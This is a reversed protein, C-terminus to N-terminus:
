SARTPLARTRGGKPLARTLFAARASEEEVDELPALEDRKLAVRLLHDTLDPNLPLVPGHLYTGFITDAIAGETGDDGNNGHGKGAIALPRARAGLTTRGAHNEFGLLTTIRGALTARASL